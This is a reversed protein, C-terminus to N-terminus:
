GATVLPQAEQWLPVVAKPLFAAVCTGVASAQSVQWLLVDDNRPASTCLLVDMAVPQAVQWLPLSAVPLDAACITVAAAHSVQWLLM